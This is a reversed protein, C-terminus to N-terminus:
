KKEQMMIPALSSALAASGAGGLDAMVTAALHAFCVLEAQKETEGTVNSGVTTEAVDDAFRIEITTEVM